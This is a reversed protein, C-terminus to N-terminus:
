ISSNPRLIGFLCRDLINKTGRVSPWGMFFGIRAREIVIGYDDPGLVMKKGYSTKHGESTVNVMSFVFIPANRNAPKIAPAKIADGSNRAYAAFM